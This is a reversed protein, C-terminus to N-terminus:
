EMFILPMGAQVSSGAPQLTKAIRGACPANVEIEMKMSELVLLTDGKQVESGEETRLKWVRGAVPSEVVRLGAPVAQIAARDDVPQEEFHFQGDRTWNELEKDFARRQRTKFAGIAAANDKLFARHRALRFETEEIEIPYAGSPFQRRIETLERDDVPYFRIQDFCKLLWPRDFAATQRYRNWMQLTRGVLQYGGPGEMGYICLYSGGIGVSNEATWTRAPNYKTTVLRHRPDLPTAVPAGLYVDGLGLVLYSADFVIRKVEDVSELGNIRRIFEINSPHWPADKRVVQHYKEIARRCQADDWSLPLHVIRSPVASEASAALGELRATLARVLAKDALALPDYHIQLSRIGPTLERLGPIGSAQLALMLRHALFRLEIDLVMDGFEVLMWSDGSRRIRVPLEDLRLYEMAPFRSGAPMLASPAPSLAAIEGHSAGLQAIASDKGVPLFRLTDGAALQGIKWLDASIVTAPCVFGGLSPGDPGLIVPMDGTFDVSGFAYANDHINSPHMGAEGGDRRAWEPRPGILRVGTRSSNYHVEWDHSFFTDIYAETFFDPAGQPGPIVHLTWPRGMTPALEPAPRSAKGAASAAAGLQLVDGTRLARGNHGGFQGLTFTAKSGLYDPCRIGGRVLLYARAGGGVVRGISLEQGARVEVVRWFPAAIGDLEAAMEAGALVISAACRFRLRPGDLTMELGAASEPNGLIRNGLRFSRSDFPGSPPVGVDWYGTRGPYDQVTTMTGPALVDLARKQFTFRSLTGTDYRASRIPESDLLARLYDLNTEIGYLRSDGLARRLKALSAARSDACAIFKALLPDYCPSVEVGSEIWHDVRLSHAQPEPFRVESLLGACPQFSKHPDEAYVRAQVAHGKPSLSAALSDICGLSGEALRLMWEVIDVAYIAETVGHEVQLRTNVELFYFRETDADFIFEVTGASRYNVACLLRSAVAGLAKRIDDGLHPAPTEEIVKQHRRQASCDREGLVVARGHGDGFVQVEIHRANDVFKELFLDANAFNNASLRAVSDFARGLDEARRCLHMGIGGGGATSKLILPYGIRQAQRLADDLGALVGSGPLLPVRQERALERARHKLGFARIQAATPGLFRLGNDGCRAVFDTNESLFGYGPHIADARARRAIAIIKHQDLYTDRAPGDGLSYAEDALRVHLSERDAEAYIAIGEIAMKKLTRLIRVAIAGRNAILVRGIKAEPPGHRNM